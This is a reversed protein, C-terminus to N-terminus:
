ASAARRPNRRGLGDPALVMLKEDTHTATLKQRICGVIEGAEEIFPRQRAQASIHHAEADLAGVSVELGLIMKASEALNHASECVLVEDNRRALLPRKELAM